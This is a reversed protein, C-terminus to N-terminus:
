FLSDGMGGLLYKKGGLSQTTVHGAAVLTKRGVVMPPLYSLAQSCPQESEHSTVAATSTYLVIVFFNKQSISEIVASFKLLM